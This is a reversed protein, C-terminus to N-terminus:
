VEKSKLFGRVNTLSPLVTGQMLVRVQGYPPMDIFAEDGPDLYGDWNAVNSNQLDSDNAGLVFFMRYRSVQTPDAIVAPDTDPLSNNILCLETPCIAGDEVTAVTVPVGTVPQANIHKIRNPLNGAM